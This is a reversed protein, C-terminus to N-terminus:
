VADLWLGPFVESRYIGAADPALRQYETERLVFWDVAHDLVRRPPTPAARLLRLLVDLQRHRDPIMVSRQDLFGAAVDRRKWVDANM